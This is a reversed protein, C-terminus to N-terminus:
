AASMVSPASGRLREIFGRWLRDETAHVDPHRLNLLLMIRDCPGDNWAEHEYSHDFFIPVGPEWRRV